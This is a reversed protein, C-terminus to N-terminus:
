KEGICFSHDEYSLGIDECDVDVGLKCDTKPAGCPFLDEKQCACNENYLGDFEGDVIAKALIVRVENQSM